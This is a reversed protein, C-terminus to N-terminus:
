GSRARWTKHERSIREEVEQVLNALEEETAVYEADGEAIALEQAAMSYASSLEGFRKAKAWGFAVSAITAAVAVPRLPLEISTVSIVAIVLAGVQALWAFMFWHSESRDHDRARRSYWQQQEGVRGARYARLRVELASERLERMKPTRQSSTGAEPALTLRGQWDRLLDVIATAFASDAEKTTAQQLPPARTLYRWTLSKVTEAVARGNFWRQDYRRQRSILTICVGILLALVSGVSLAQSINPHDHELFIAGALTALTAGIVLLYMEWKLVSFYAAQAKVSAANAARFLAPYDELELPASVSSSSM